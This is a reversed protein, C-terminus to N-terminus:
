ILILFCYHKVKWFQLDAYSAFIIESRFWYLYSLVACINKNDILEICNQEFTFINQFFYKQM